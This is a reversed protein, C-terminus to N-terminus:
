GKSRSVVKNEPEYYGEALGKDMMEKRVLNKADKVKTGKFNGILLIGENFGKLYVKDKAAILKEKDNQSTVKFEDCAKEASLTSYGPIEIIPIPDFPLVMEDTIKYKARM